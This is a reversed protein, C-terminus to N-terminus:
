KLAAKIKKEMEQLILDRLDRSLSEFGAEAFVEFFSKVHINDKTAEKISESAEVYKNYDRIIGAYDEATLYSRFFARAEATAQVHNITSRIENLRERAAQREPSPTPDDARYIEEPFARALKRGLETGTYFAKLEPDWLLTEPPPVAALPYNWAGEVYAKAKEAFLEILGTVIGVVVSGGPFIGALAKLFTKAIPVGHDRIAELIEEQKNM